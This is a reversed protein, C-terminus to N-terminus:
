QDAQGEQKGSPSSLADVLATITRREMAALRRIYKLCATSEGSRLAFFPEFYRLVHNRKECDNNEAIFAVCRNKPWRAAPFIRTGEGTKLMISLSDIRASSIIRAAPFLEKCSVRIFRKAEIRSGCWARLRPFLCCLARVATLCCVLIRERRILRGVRGQGSFRYYAEGMFRHINMRRPYCLARGDGSVPVYEEALFASGRILKEVALRTKGVGQLGVYLCVRGQEELCLGHVLSYGRAICRLSFVKEIIHLIDWPSVRKEATVTFRPGVLMATDFSVTGAGTRLYLRSDACWCDSGLCLARPPVAIREAFVIRLFPDAAAVRRFVELEAAIFADIVAPVDKLQIDLIDHLSYYSDM